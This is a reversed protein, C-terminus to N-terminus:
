TKMLSARSSAPRRFDLLLYHSAGLNHSHRSLQAARQGGVLANRLLRELPTDAARRLAMELNGIIVTLLNNFDHAIGGTLQGVADMKQAQRLTEEAAMRGAAESYFDETRKLTLWVLIFLLLTAPVGFILHSELFERWEGRIDAVGLGTSIYVPLGDLKRIAIRRESNDVQSVTTYFGGDPDRAISKMFGSAADLRVEPLVPGPYRVLVAGDDRVMTYNSGRLAALRAYFAHFDAPIVSIVTIGAFTGDPTSRRRSVAFFPEGSIRPILVQGVFTGKDRQVHTRFYERDAVNLAKPVPFVSSSALPAGTADILWISDVGHLETRVDQLQRHLESEEARLEQDSRGRVLGNVGAMTVTLSQFVRAAQEAIVDLSRQIREDALTFSQQYSVYATYAFLTAPLVITSILMWKLLRVTAARRAEM